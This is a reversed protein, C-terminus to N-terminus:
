SLSSLWRPAVKRGSTPRRAPAFHRPIIPRFMAGPGMPQVAGHGREGVLVGSDIKVQVPIRHLTQRRQQPPSVSRPHHVQGSAEGPQEPQIGAAPQQAPAVPVRHQHRSGVAHAGLDLHSEHRSPMVGHALIQHIVTDVVDEHLSGPRQEEQIVDSAAGHLLRDYGRHDTAYGRRALERGFGRM